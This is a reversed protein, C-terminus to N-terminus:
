GRTQRSHSLIVILVRLWSLTVSSIRFSLRGFLPCFVSRPFSIYSWLDKVEASSPPSHDLENEQQKLRSPFLGQAGVPCSSPHVGSTTQVWLPFGVGVQVRTVASVSSDQRDASLPYWSSGSECVIERSFQKLIIRGNPFDWLRDRERCNKVLIRCTNKENGEM